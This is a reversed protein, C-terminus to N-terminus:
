IIINSHCTLGKFYVKAWDVSHHMMLRDDRTKNRFFKHHILRIRQSGCGYVQNSFEIIKNRRSSLIFIVVPHQWTSKMLMNSKKRGVLQAFSRLYLLFLAWLYFTYTGYSAPAKIVVFFFSFLFHLSFFTLNIRDGM